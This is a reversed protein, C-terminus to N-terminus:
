LEEIFSAPVYTFGDVVFAAGGTLPVTKSQGDKTLVAANTPADWTVTYGKAEAASRLAVFNGPVFTKPGRRGPAANHTASTILQDFLVDSKSMLDALTDASLQNVHDSVKGPDSEALAKIVEKEQAMQEVLADEQLKWYAQVGPNYLARDQDALACIKKFAWYASDADYQPADVSYAEPLQTVASFEPIFVSHEGGGLALWTLAACDAPMDDFLQIIHTDPTTSVAIARNDEQGELNLDYATGEYRTRFVAMVDQVDVKEDPTYLLPYFTDAEFTDGALSPALIHMGGWNRLNNGESRMGGCVSQALLVKGDDDKATLGAAEITDLLGASLVFSETDEPDAAGLMFHNGFVAVKDEPLKMAAYQHGGYFEMIWAETQDAVLIINGEASGYEDVVAALTTVAEKATASTAAALAPLVAERLGSEVTPDAAKWADCGSASVTGTIAVGMENVCVAAYLGDGASAHDEMQTYKYTHAPLPYSFGNIDDLTRGPEDSAPVVTHLKDYDSPSIDESRAIIAAGDSSVAKGVYAGTCAYASVNGLALTAVLTTTLLKTFQKKMEM